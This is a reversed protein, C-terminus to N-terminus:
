KTEEELLWGNPGAYLAGLGPALVKVPLKMGRSRIRALAERILAQRPLPEGSLGELHGFASDSDLGADIRLVSPVDLTGRDTCEAPEPPDGYTMM